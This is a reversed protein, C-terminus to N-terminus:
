HSNPAHTAVVVAAPRLIQEGNGYGARLAAVVTGPPADSPVAAVAEHRLPDFERGIDEYRPFGLQALLTRAQELVAAVGAVMASDAASHADGAHELARELNDVVGLWERAVRAREDVRERAVERQYRKRLNDLDALTRRLQAESEELVRGPNADIDADVDADVAVPGAEPATATQQDDAV